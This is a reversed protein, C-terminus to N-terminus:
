THIKELDAVEVGLNQTYEKGGILQTRLTSNGDSSNFAIFSNLYHLLAPKIWPGHRLIINIPSFWFNFATEPSYVGSPEVAFRVPWLGPELAEQGDIEVTDVFWKDDDYKSDDDPNVQLGVTPNDRRISELGYSDTKVKHTLELVNDTKDLITDYQTKRNYEDLGQNEEYAGSKIPGVEISTM